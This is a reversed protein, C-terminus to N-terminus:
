ARSFDQEVLNDHNHRIANVLCVQMKSFQVFLFMTTVEVPSNQLHSILGLIFCANVYIVFM